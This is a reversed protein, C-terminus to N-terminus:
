AALGGGRGLSRPPRRDRPDRPAAGPPGRRGGRPPARGRLAGRRAPPLGPLAAGDPLAALRFPRLGPRRAPPLPHRRLSNAPLPRPPLAPPPPLLLPLSSLAQGFSIGGEQDWSALGGGGRPSPGARWPSLLRREHELSGEELRRPPHRRPRPPAG